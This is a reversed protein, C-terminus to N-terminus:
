CPCVSCSWSGLGNLIKVPWEFLHITNNCVHAIRVRQSCYLEETLSSLLPISNLSFTSIVLSVLSTSALDFRSVRERSSEFFSPIQNKEDNKKQKSEPFPFLWLTTGRLTKKEKKRKEKKWFKRKIRFKFFFHLVVDNQCCYRCCYCIQLPAKFQCFNFTLSSFQCFQFNSSQFSFIHFNSPWNQM